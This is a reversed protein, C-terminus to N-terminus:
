IDNEERNKNELYVAKKIESRRKVSPKEFYQNERLKEVLKVNRVKHKMIKLAKEINGKVEVILM